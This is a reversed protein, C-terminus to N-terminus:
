KIEIYAYKGRTEKKIKSWEWKIPTYYYILYKGKLIIKINEHTKIKFPEKYSNINRLQKSSTKNWISDPILRTLMGLEYIKRRSKRSFGLLNKLSNNKLEIKSSKNNRDIKYFQLQEDKPDKTFFAFSEPFITNVINKSYANLTNMYTSESLSNLFIFICSFFYVMMIFSYIGLKTIQKKTM